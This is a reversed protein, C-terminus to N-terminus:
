GADLFWCGELFCEAHSFADICGRTRVEGLWASACRDRPPAPSQAGCRHVSCCCFFLLPFRRREPWTGQFAVLQRTGPELVSSVSLYEPGLLVFRSGRFLILPELEGPM